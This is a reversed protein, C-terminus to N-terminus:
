WNFRLYIQTLKKKLNMGNLYYMNEFIQLHHFQHHRTLSTKLKKSKEKNFWHGKIALKKLADQTKDIYTKLAM